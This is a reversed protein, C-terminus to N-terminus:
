PLSMAERAPERLQQLRSPFNICLGVFDKEKGIATIQGLAIGYRLRPPPKTFERRIKPLFETQYDNCMVIVSSVLNWKAESSSVRLTGCFCFEMAWSSQLSLYSLGFRYSTARFFRFGM